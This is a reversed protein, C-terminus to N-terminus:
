AEVCSSKSDLKLAVKALHRGINQLRQLEPIHELVHM